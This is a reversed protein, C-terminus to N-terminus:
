KLVLVPLVTRSMVDRTHSGGLMGAVGTRGHTAMVIMDCGHEAAIAVIADGIHTAQTARGDFPVGAERAQQEFGDLLRRAHARLAAEDPSTDSYFPEVVLGTIAARLQRALGISVDLARADLADGAIPVLLREIM